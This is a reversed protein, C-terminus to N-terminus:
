VVETLTSLSFLNQQQWADFSSFCFIASLLISFIMHETEKCDGTDSIYFICKEEESAHHNVRFMLHIETFIKCLSKAFGLYFHHLELIM